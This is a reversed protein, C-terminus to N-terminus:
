RAGNPGIEEDRGDLVIFSGSKQDYVIESHMMKTGDFYHRMFKLFKQDGFTLIAVPTGPLQSNDDKATNDDSRTVDCHFETTKKVLNGDANRYPYYVKVNCFNFPHVEMIDGWDPDDQLMRTAFNMLETLDPFFPYVRMTKPNLGISSGGSGAGYAARLITNDKVAVNTGFYINFSTRALLASAPKNSNPAKLDDEFNDKYIGCACKKLLRQLYRRENRNGIM